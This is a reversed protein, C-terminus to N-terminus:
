LLNALIAETDGVNYTCDALGFSIDAEAPDGEFISAGRATAHLQALTRMDPRTATFRSIARCAKSVDGHAGEVHNHFARTGMYLDVIVIQKAELDVLLPVCYAARGRLDFKNAVTKIDFSKINADVRDRVMWGAHAAATDAFSEGCYRYIQPALYRVGSALAKPDVDIFEAAGHPASQLDGSHRIGAGSLQTYSVHGIYQFDEDMQMLSLDLDTRRAAQKWYVFLRIVKDLDVAIRSGRGVSLLGDSAARQQLPVTYNALEPDIWVRQGQWSERQSLQAVLAAKLLEALRELQGESLAKQTTNELVKIAGKKNIVVRLEEDNITSFYKDLVLLTKLPVGDIKAAFADLIRHTFEPFRRLLEHLKRAFLGPRKSLHTILSEVDRDAIFAETKSEFTEIKGNRLLDFAKAARKYTRGHESPHIYRGLELWLGRYRKLDEALSPAKDLIGLVLRRQARSFKPFRIKTALSVDTGTLAAFLRLLDTPTTAMAAVGAEDGAKWFTELVLAQTEKMTIEDADIASAGFFSLLERVDEHLEEKISSAAYLADRLWEELLPLVDDEFVLELPMWEVHTDGARERQAERGKDFLAKDQFQSIPDAGFDKLDFLWEPVTLGSDLTDGKAFWGAVNGIYGLVRKAFYADDDPVEDPFGTFLPVYDVDGGRMERLTKVTDAYGVFLADSSEHLLEPNKVEYGLRALESLLGIRRKPSVGKGRPIPVVRLRRVAIHKM